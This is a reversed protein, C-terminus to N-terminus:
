NQSMVCSFIKHHWFFRKISSIFYKLNHSEANSSYDKIEKEEVKM